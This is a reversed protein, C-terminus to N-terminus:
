VLEALRTVAVYIESIRYWTRYDVVGSQPLRFIEQFKRVARYTQEDFKENIEIKGFDYYADLTDLILQIIGIGYGTDGIKYYFGDPRAPFIFLSEALTNEEISGLYKERLLNWTRRDAVGTPALDYKRQFAKLAESTQGEFIGDIVIPPIDNDHYSLQRLYTQLMITAERNNQRM